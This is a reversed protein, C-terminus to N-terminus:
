QEKTENDVCKHEEVTLINYKNDYTVASYSNDDGRYEYCYEGTKKWTSEIDNYGIYKEFDEDFCKCIYFKTNPNIYEDTIMIGYCFYNEEDVDLCEGVENALKELDFVMFHCDFYSKGYSSIYKDDDPYMEKFNDPNYIRCKKLMEIMEEDDITEDDGDYEITDDIEDQLYLFDDTEQNSYPTNTERDFNTMANSPIAMMFSVLISLGLGMGVCKLNRM